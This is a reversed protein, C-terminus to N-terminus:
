KIISLKDELTTIKDKLEKICEVLLGCMNGYSINYHNNEFAVVEPLIQMVEQAILGTEANSTDTRIYTYGNIKNIKELPNDIKKINTKLNSDSISLMTGGLLINQNVTINSSFSTSLNIMMGIGTTDTNITGIGIRLKTNTDIFSNIIPNEQEDRFNLNGFTNISSNCNINTGIGSIYSYYTELRVKSAGMFIKVSSNTDKFICLSNDFVNVNSNLYNNQIIKLNNKNTIEFNNNNNISINYTNSTNHLSLYPYSNSCSSSIIINPNVNITNNLISIANSGYISITYDGIQNNNNFIIPATTRIKGNANGIITLNSNIITNFNSSFQSINSICYHNASNINSVNITNITNLTCNCFSIAKLPFNDISKCDINYILANSTYINYTDLYENGIGLNGLPSLSFATNTNNSCNIFNTYKPYYKGFYNYNYNSKYIYLEISYVVGEASTITKVIKNYLDPALYPASLFTTSYPYLSFIFTNPTLSPYNNLKFTNSAPFKINITPTIDTFDTSTYLNTNEYLTSYLNNLLINNKIFNNTIIINIISGTFYLDFIFNTYNDNNFFPISILNSNSSYTSSNINMSILHSNNRDINSNKNITLQNPNFPSISGINIFGNSNISCCKNHVDDLNRYQFVNSSIPIIDIKLPINPNYNSGISIYGLNNVSHVLVPMSPSTTTTSLKATKFEVINSGGISVNRNMDTDVYKIVSINPISFFEDSRNINNNVMYRSWELANIPSQTAVNPTGPRYDTLNQFIINNDITINQIVNASLLRLNEAFSLNKIVVPKLNPSDIFNTYITSNPDVYINSTFLNSSIINIIDKEVKLISNNEDFKIEFSNNINNNLNLKINNSFHTVNNSTYFYNNVNLNSHYYANKNFDIRNNDFTIIKDNSKYIAIKDNIYGFEYNNRFTIAANSFTDIDTNLYILNSSLKSNINAYNNIEQITQYTKIHQKVGIVVAM